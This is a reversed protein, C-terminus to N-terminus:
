STRNFPQVRKNPNNGVFSIKTPEVGDVGFVGFLGDVGIVGDWGMGNMGDVGVVTTAQKTFFSTRTSPIRFSAKENGNHGRRPIDDLQAGSDLRNGQCAQIFLMKPKGLLNPSKDPLLKAIVDENLSLYEDSATLQGGEGGHALIFLAM